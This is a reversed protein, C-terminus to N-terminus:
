IIQQLEELREKPLSDPDKFYYDVIFTTGSTDHATSVEKRLLFRQGVLMKM